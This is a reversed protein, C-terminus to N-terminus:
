SEPNIVDILFIGSDFGGKEDRKKHLFRLTENETYGLIKAISLLVEIMDVIEEIVTDALLEAHEETLKELLRPMLQDQHLQKTIPTQGSNLIYQPIRERVLKKSPLRFDTTDRDRKARNCRFCLAQLNREDDLHMRIGDKVIYAHKDAESRPIIHDIDIPSLKSSIGCLECKGKAAKLVRYRKSAEIASIGSRAARRKIWEGIKAKCVAKTKEILTTDRLDFNLSFTRSRRDYTVINHKTLTIKPWRMLIKEYYEQVSEDYGSLVKALDAKNATGNQELLYLIIAPQYIDTMSMTETLFELLESLKRM